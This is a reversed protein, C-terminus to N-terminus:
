ACVVGGLMEVIDVGDFIIKKISITKILLALQWNADKKNFAMVSIKVDFGDVTEVSYSYRGMKLVEILEVDDVPIRLRKSAAFAADRASEAEVYVAYGTKAKVSVARYKKM